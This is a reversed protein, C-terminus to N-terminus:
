RRRRGRAREALSASSADDGKRAAGLHRFINEMMIVTSDVVIGFDVAGLSILNAPTRTASWAASRSSCRSRSTSRRSSRPACTASSSSSCSTVLVMGVLSTRSSRTRRSASSIAATTTRSSTWGRRSSTTRRPHLRRAQPDRRADHPTEGGYRMLVIGQVVDPDDDYGSSASARRTASRRRRRRGARPRADGEARRRRHERHRPRTRSRPRHRPRRVGARRHHPAARRREPEREAIATSRAARAHRRPREPSLPRGRRPVAEDRRRLEHRRHRGAGAQVPARPDLGRGDETRRAHLGQRRRTASSRASRTGRRSSRSSARDAASVFQSATSSRRGRTKTRRDDWNFYCKVDSLASSRSRGSTISGRCARLPRDRAPDHRLARGGRRELRRAPHHGRGAAPGPEPVGRHRAAPLRRAWRSSCFATAFVVVPMRLAAAVIRQIM